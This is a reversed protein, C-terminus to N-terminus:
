KLSKGLYHGLVVLAWIPSWRAKPNSLFSAWLAKIAEPKLGAFEILSDLGAKSYSNLPGQMWERMPLVFGMKKKEIVHLPLLDRCSDILLAKPTQSYYKCRKPLTLVHEFLDNDLFPVRLEVSVAMSMMDSDRLLTNALYNRLESWTTQGFSDLHLPMETQPYSVRPLGLSQLIQSGACRRWWLDYLAINPTDPLDDLYHQGKGSAMLIRLFPKPILSLFRLFPLERFFSYGGFLEDAGLGSLAVKFGAKAVQESVIYTNIADTSPLDMAAVARQVTHIVDDEDLRITYHECGLHRATKEAAASEDFASESFGVSFSTVKRSSHKVALATIITSDIGGSLLCAVPVDSLLHAGVSAEILSRTIGLCTGHPGSNQWQGAQPVWYCKPEDPVGNRVWLSTAPPLESIQPFLLASAPCSGAQLYAALTKKDPPQISPAADILWRVESSFFFGDPGRYMYLPKIGFRDRCLLVTGTKADYIAFAFMGKLRPLLEEGWASYAILITETDSRGTFNFGQEELEKRLALHNYIEGNFIIVNGSAPDIMPQAAM